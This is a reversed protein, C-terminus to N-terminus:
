FAYGYKDSLEQLPDAIKTKTTIVSNTQTNAPTNASVSTPTSTPANTSKDTQGGLIVSEYSQSDSDYSDYSDYSSSVDMKDVIDDSNDNSNEDTMDDIERVIIWKNEKVTNLRLLSKNTLQQVQEDGEEDPEDVVDDEVKSEDKKDSEKKFEALIDDLDNTSSKKSDNDVQQIVDNIELSEDELIRFYIPILFKLNFFSKKQKETLEIGERLKYNCVILDKFFPNFTKEIFETDDM